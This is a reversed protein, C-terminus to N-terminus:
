RIRAVRADAFLTVDAVHLRTQSATLLSRACSAAYQQGLLVDGTIAIGAQLFGTIIGNACLVRDPHNM